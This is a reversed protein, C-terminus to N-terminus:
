GTTASDAAVSDPPLLRRELADLQADTTRTAEQFVPEAQGGLSDLGTQVAQRETHLTEITAQLVAATASDAAAAEAELAAIRADLAQTRLLAATRYREVTEHSVHAEAPAEPADGCGFALLLGFLALRRPRFLSDTM